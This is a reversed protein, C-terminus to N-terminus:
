GVKIDRFHVWKGQEEDVLVKRWLGWTDRPLIPKVAQFMAVNDHAEQLRYNPIRPGLHHVHHLGINGSFWQMIPGLKFYSSGTLAADKLNWDEKSVWYGDDFHHQVHFLWVGFAGSVFSMPAQIIFFIKVGAWMDGGGLFYSLTGILLAWTLNVGWVQRKMRKDAGTMAFRYEVLFLWVGGVPFTVLPHRYARYILRKLPSAALYDKVTMTWFYGIGRQEVQGFSAHHLAHNHRWQWYPTYSLMGTFFGVIDNARTSKFFSGHGCDHNIIFLRATLLGGIFSWFLTLAYSIELSKYALTWIIIYPITTNVIQWVSRRWDASCYPRIIEQWSPQDKPNADMM